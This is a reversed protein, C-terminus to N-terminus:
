RSLTSRWLVYDSLRHHIARRQCHRIQHLVGPTEWLGLVQEGSSRRISRWTECADTWISFLLFVCHSGGIKLLVASRRTSFSFSLRNRVLCKPLIVALFVRQWKDVISEGSSSHAFREISLIEEARSQQSANGIGLTHSSRDSHAM